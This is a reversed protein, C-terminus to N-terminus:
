AEPTAEPTPNAVITFVFTKPFAFFDGGRVSATVIYKGPATPMTSKAYFKGVGTFWYHISGASTSDLAKGEKTLICLNNGAKLEEAQSVTITNAKDGSNLVPNKELMVDKWNKLVTVSGPMSVGTNYNDNIALATAFYQGAHAPSGIAFLLNDAIKINDLANILDNINDVTLGYNKLIANLLLKNVPSNIAKDVYPRIADKFEGVTMGKNLKAEITEDEPVNFFKQIESVGKIFEEKTGTVQLYITTQKNTNVGVYVIYIDLAEDVPDTSVYTAADIKEGAYMIKLPENITVKVDAKKVMLDGTVEKSAKYDDAGNFKVRIVQYNEEDAGMQPYSLTMNLFDSGKGGEIPAFGKLADLDTDLGLNAIVTPLAKYDFTFDSVKLTEKAPLASNAWDIANDFIQQKMVSADKNYTITAKDILKVVGNYKDVKTIERYNATDSGICVKFTSNAKQEVLAKHTCTVTVDNKYNDKAVTTSTFGDVSGFATNYATKMTTSLKGAQFKGSGECEYQWDIAAIQEATLEGYNALLAKALADKVDTGDKILVEVAAGSKEKLVPEVTEEQSLPASGVDEAFVAPSVGTVSALMLVALLSALFRKLNYKKM